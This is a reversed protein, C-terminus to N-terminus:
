VGDTLPPPAFFDSVAQMWTKKIPSAQWEQPPLDMLREEFSPLPETQTANGYSVCQDGRRTSEFFAGVNGFLRSFFM